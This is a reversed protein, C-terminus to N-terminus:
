IRMNDKNVNKFLIGSEDGLKDEGYQKNLYLYIYKNYKKLTEKNVYRKIDRYMPNYNLNRIAEKKTRYKDKLMDVISQAFAMVENKDSFYGVKDTAPNPPLGRLGGRASQGVHVNEHKLMHYIFDLLGSDLVSTNMVIRAKKTKPNVLAFAPM